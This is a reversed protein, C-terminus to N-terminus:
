WHEDISDAFEGGRFARRINSTPKSKNVLNGVVSLQTVSHGRKARKEAGAKFERPRWFKLFTERFGFAANDFNNVVSNLSKVGHFACAKATIPGRTSNSIKQKLFM